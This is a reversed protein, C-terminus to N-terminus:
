GFGTIPRSLNEQRPSSRRTLPQLTMMPLRLQLPLMEQGMAVMLLSNAVLQQLLKTQEDRSELILAIVQTLTPPPPPNGNPHTPEPDGRENHTNVM